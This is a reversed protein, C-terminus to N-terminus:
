FRIRWTVRRAGINVSPLSQRKSNGVFLVVAGGAAIAGGTAIWATQLDDCFDLSYEGEEICANDVLVGSALLSGGGILMGIGTWKLAPSMPARGGQPSGAQKVAEERAARALSFTPQQASVPGAALLVGLVSAIAARM